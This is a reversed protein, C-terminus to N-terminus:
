ENRSILRVAYNYRAKANIKNELETGQRPRGGASPKSGECHAGEVVDYMTCLNSM